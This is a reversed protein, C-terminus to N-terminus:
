KDNFQFETVAWPHVGCDSFRVWTPQLLFYVQGKIDKFPLSGPLKAFHTAEREAFEDSSLRHAIGEFQVTYRRDPDTVEYAVRLDRDINLAKRSTASTGIILELQDNQSFAVNAAQPQGNPGVTAITGM